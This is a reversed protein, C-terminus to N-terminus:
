NFYYTKTVVRRLVKGGDMEDDVFCDYYNYLESEDEWFTFLNEDDDCYDYERRVMDLFADAFLDCIERLRNEVRDANKDDLSIYYGTKKNYYGGNLKDYLDLGKECLEDVKGPADKELKWFVGFDHNCIMVWELFYKEDLVTLWQGSYSIDYSAARRNMNHLYEGINLDDVYSIADQFVEERLKSNNGWVERLEERTMDEIYKKM